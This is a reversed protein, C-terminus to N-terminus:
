CCKFYRFLSRRNRLFIDGGDINLETRPNVWFFGSSIDLSSQITDAIEGFIGLSGINLDKIKLILWHEVKHKRSCSITRAEVAQSIDQFFYDALNRYNGKAGFKPNLQAAEQVVVTTDPDFQSLIDWVATGDLVRESGYERVPADWVGLLAGDPGIAAVAGTLGNDIGLFTKM